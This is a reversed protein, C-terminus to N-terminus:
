PSADDIQDDDTDSEAIICTSCIAKAHKPCTPNECFNCRIRTKVDVNRPCLHCRRRSSASPRQGATSIARRQDIITYGIQHMAMKVSKKMVQPKALRELIYANALQM